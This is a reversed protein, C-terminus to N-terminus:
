DVLEEISHEQEFGLYSDSVIILKMGQLGTTSSPLEMHTNIRDHLSIRKLAYLETTSTNGLILWWAEDKIKPFRPAFARSMNKRSNTKEMRINLRLFKEGDVDRRQLKLKVQIRPFHQLDQYLRSAPFNGIVTQLTGKPIDLLQQVTSIGRKRLSGVLDDNMCPLMWLASDQDFWLGQMVMQLLHMCIISSALWGSNACIDIMAQIIRISQDLVSKLDTVYDSIPLELQSFHAQFLLNAKVHPDDLRNKDVMYRVRKSLAENYNEENHRVPLENYESAGSLIHLFVELSTDPGINSGFMSVTMYNLYYQSALSGLMMSEVIDENMKICGSDELDEFTSQVLRSLYSSLGEAETDELGYYAPNVTLRRFLYTWTLYHVADEKHCITGSVIEANFHEHLQDRLSSEVPFPEYLFKKYFSKKPEHVLIVAKGHQDYQPRGARGMMQLIDTIPFDVYRKAKGDYFETGKIIVLHAPLNVGWALTSTCVLVQIKNNAFLEEVMSRDRDNLGAHHLGIGFQLTQRLNQDTVQSLVMQLDEDPMSLFQRPHEDSAAFQILDLATLRTQRRSSVFILVPKTPSHTCIAAYAPKNMSNMRPCYFKGPYGQIHVELPVPRVSPKFNFLGIEGVGLWDALDSANALATSLGVFRVARETQSSIYRMRSVIVELIPGRDAGLLHIEDLIMLGVKTVYSRSHWNRSIGDWKEPTSIIIDASLLAILDPTYDGTMEVMKKGLRSVLRNRWDSMRERVIAKLPAIYIVKMDPQTNFLRLMALEASITKGSGTPAGLLVNNDTHYLTHFIQTQIPNFHSFKYLAEFTNNGLASVPLPKLDLLETHTTRALPLALKQFSICYFAEAQLWSDSVARIYYQPPHPEFIPVTFSLKQPEGRAMRKTLSFLESHYIHDSESDEVLIWWRQAAGHFRDKWTFDPTIVLDVKLVTRTIPSVTASLQIWPFYGLNQKVLRGGPAYRILAGIDKEEMEQLHDLDVGREELKRLIEASLDKDFQRLPHQHPWIQRDVAKCYELMFLTMECWGRRLCIEFLARMIRALSASIYAADSVLSFTDISGRSIFLQILISIKGYKNAPGGKIELPCSQRALTELENQEEDRVVINEFESSRAVMEIIECDNMHRKLMENYTEVSSYQIYFHSAIRGLETCYFNGSKEDFRMMKAKDLARAADTVFSRLKLSLSPDAVVEDWGIGYALPNLRMRISLYTYGLWACAEKVNTVTGLAVEANLNDKLSSIFQSEIPLQSTLLRLYYALKDHSTIIIGEGSKDFQPRGARGFIQMVDLMGLDRWGGAKPDYLQTGKIVVTHAPLNVGWALTATCVLVKLLGDSFLRETLGRDSRLMGANHVGLGLEFLKVLDKNRSKMVERKILQFQPHTDNQFLELDEYKRALEVLIEATKVTDKRSHVFVMAQHGQRLSDVVKKYCIENLLDSRAKFNQESIGIYQQALSVPRYSSDFFFLGMEPNVRLFQAVELYNPLTASLGVIRIMRQTSEVQRLTRAVLAEIVPGRDDNLLHVEDIILLKVLMSLSMDSSKRTIVDWKEPTTVIMQTEELENRSLQMDGTLERVNMNLPSLRHSFTSTVEAALAKMPAVYVIKFEDKHLYGDKFHQGIEHLISIMAINTKGAGTPACVLINENTYYVTQYIRSQIRNLSKYGHFAAQAFDDLEKIEILREGPKMQATPTPPIIVEEYGKHHKRVTGQPLATAALTGQGTGILDDFPKKRESAELLSSFSTASVDSEAGSETGRRNKKEEKRRLKDIQRESETQVTVQTGYSPMRSQPNSATKDSKVVLLGQHIADVLEKRHLILDQVTEFASDGVLDLLDGAIEEGPKESDLVRCIAIALDDGSLQSISERVIRDCADRLWSLNFKRGDVVPYNTSDSHNYWGEHFSSSSATSDDDILERAELSGDVLFRAPAHFVLDAGFERDDCSGNVHNNSVFAANHDIPQLHSLRQALSAVKQLNADSVAHGILNQLETKKEIINDVFTEEKAPKGFIHYATLAVEGFGDSPMEGDILEVVAGIFQKYAQRVEISAEEWRHVIKKALESEDLSNASKRPKNLNHLITKRHLYAQDVDFPDRLSNTLRPLQVIM